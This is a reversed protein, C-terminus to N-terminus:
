LFTDATMYRTSEIGVIPPIKPTSGTAIIFKESTILDKGDILIAHNDVFEATGHIVKVESCIFFEPSHIDYVKQCVSRIYPLVHSMNVNVNRTDCLGFKNATIIDHSMNALSILTKSPIDGTWTHSGGIKDQKEIIAVREVKEAAALAAVLGSAGAGIVVVDYDYEAYATTPACTGLILILSCIYKAHVM